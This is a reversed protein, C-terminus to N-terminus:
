YCQMLGDKGRYTRIYVRKGCKTCKSSLRGASDTAGKAKLKGRGCDCKKNPPKPMLSQRRPQKRGIYEDDGDKVVYRQTKYEAAM